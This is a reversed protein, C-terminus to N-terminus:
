EFALIVKIAGEDKTLALEMGRQAQEIPLHHTAIAEVEVRGSAALEIATRVDDHAGMLSGVLDLEKSILSYAAFQLPAATLLAVLVIRGRRKAIDLAVNVLSVDDATIFVADVGQGNTLQKVKDAFCVDPLLFDHTAGLRERAADLCHQKVDAAIVTAAGLARCVGCLL